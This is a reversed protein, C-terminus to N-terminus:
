TWRPLRATTRRRVPGHLLLERLRATEGSLTFREEARSRAAKAMRAALREDTMLASLAEALAQPDDPPVMLGCGDDLM